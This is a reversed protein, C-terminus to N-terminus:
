PLLGELELRRTVAEIGAELNDEFLKGKRAPSHPFIRVVRTPSGELGIERLDAAIDKSGLKKVTAFRGRYLDELNPLRPENIEKVVSMLAPLPLRLVQYGCDTLSEVVAHDQAIERIRRVYTAQPLGLHAALEPGVQATDGDIAQKGCLILDFRGLSLIARALAYSTAWTDSGAFERGTVLVAEDVGLALVERLMREAQLPGMTLATVAGGLKERIRLAEEVAFADLPNLVSEVGERVLTNTKPDIEVRTTDPVQKVCVAIRM